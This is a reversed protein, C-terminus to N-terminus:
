NGHDVDADSRAAGGPYARMDSMLACCFSPYDRM